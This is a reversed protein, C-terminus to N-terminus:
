QRVQTVWWDPEEPRWADEARGVLVIHKVEFKVTGEPYFVGYAFVFRGPKLMQDLPIGPDQWPEGLNRVVETYTADTLLARYERGDTTRLLFEKKGADFTTIYGAITDSFSFTLDNM